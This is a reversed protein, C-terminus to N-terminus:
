SSNIVHSYIWREAGAADTAGAAPGKTLRYFQGQERLDFDNQAGPTMRCPLSVGEM